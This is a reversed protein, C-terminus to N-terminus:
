KKNLEKVKSEPMWHEFNWPDKKIVGDAFPVFISIIAFVALLGQYWLCPIVDMASVAGATLSGVMLIQAGYPIAGQMVCSFLDLLSASRRPDVKYEECIGRAIPGDVIISVTNNAIAMDTLSVMAAIGLEASKPGKIFARIKDLLWNIGGEKEVMKALGGVFISTFFVEAMGTMGNYIAQALSIVTLDGMALGVAGCLVIGLTLVVFVNMGILALIIVALYPLVKVISYAGVAIEAAGNTRGFILLLVFTLVAAPMAITLNLKFKDRMECGQSRTAAITTDSIFSMNDGFMCGGIIAGMMLPMSLGTAEVVGIGIPALASLTGMSTGTALAMFCAVLFLGATVVSSPLISLSLNVVSDVGGMTKAVTAFAGALLYVMCMIVIDEGGVGEAFNKFKEDVTGKFMLFAVIVGILCATPAPFQYFAMDVGQANLIIGAGLYIVIFVLFPLMAIGSVKRTEKM